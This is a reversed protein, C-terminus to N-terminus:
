IQIIFNRVMESEAMDADEQEYFQVLASGRLEANPEDSVITCFGLPGFTQFLSYIDQSTVDSGLNKVQLVIASPEPEQREDTFYLHLRSGDDFTVGNYM